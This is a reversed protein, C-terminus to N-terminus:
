RMFLSFTNSLIDFIEQYDTNAEAIVTSQKWRSTVELKVAFFM